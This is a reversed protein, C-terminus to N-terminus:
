RKKATKKIGCCSSPPSDSRNLLLFSIDDPTETPESIQDNLYGEDARRGAPVKEM